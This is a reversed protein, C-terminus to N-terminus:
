SGDWELTIHNCPNITRLSCKTIVLTMKSFFRRGEVGPNEDRGQKEFSMKQFGDISYNGMGLNEYDNESIGMSHEWGLNKKAGSCFKGFSMISVM